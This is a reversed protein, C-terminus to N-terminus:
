GVRRRARHLTGSDKPMHRGYYSAYVSQNLRYLPDIYWAGTASRVSAHFGLRSLDAHITATKDDIGRGRYTAIDPHKKALGPAMIQSRTLAFRQFKGNPAPLSIVLAKASRASSSPAGKLAKALGARDLSFSKFRKPAVQKTLGARPAAASKTHWLSKFTQSKASRQAAASPLATAIVALMAVGMLAAVIPRPRSGARWDERDM